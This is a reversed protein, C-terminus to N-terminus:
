HCSPSEHDDPLYPPTPSPPPPRKPPNCPLPSPLPASPPNPVQPPDMPPSPSKIARPLRISSITSVLESITDQVVIAPHQQKETAVFLPTLVLVIMGVCVTTMCISCLSLGVGIRRRHRKKDKIENKVVLVNNNVSTSIWGRKFHADRWMSPGRIARRDKNIGCDRM